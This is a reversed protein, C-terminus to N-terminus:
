RFETIYNRFVYIPNRWKKKHFEIICGDAYIFGLWYAQEDTYINKFYEKNYLYKGMYM